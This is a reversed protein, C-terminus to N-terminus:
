SPPAHISDGLSFPDLQDEETAEDDVDMLSQDQGSEGPLSSAVPLIPATPAPGSAADSGPEGFGAVSPDVPQVPAAPAPARGALDSGPGELGPLPSPAPLPHKRPRGRKRKVQGEAAGLISAMVDGAHISPGADGAPISFAEAEPREAADVAPGGLCDHLAKQLVRTKTLIAKISTIYDDEIDAIAERAVKDDIALFSVVNAQEVLDDFFIARQHDDGGTTSQSQAKRKAWEIPAPMSGSMMVSGMEFRDIRVLGVGLGSALLHSRGMNPNWALAHVGIAPHWPVPDHFQGQRFRAKKRRTDDFEPLLDDLLRLEGTARDHDLRFAKVCPHATAGKRHIVSSRVVNILRVAGDTSGYALFPHWGSTSMSVIRGYAQAVRKSIGYMGLRQVTVRVTNDSTDGIFLELQPCWAVKNLMRGMFPDHLDLLANNTGLDSVFLVHPLHPADPEFTGSASQYPILSWAISSIYDESFPLFHSPRVTETGARLADGTRWVAVHGRSCGAALLEGGAWSICTPIAGFSQLHLAATLKIRVPGRATSGSPSSQCARVDDPHPIALIRATGDLFVGALVGLRRAPRRQDRVPQSRYDHGNPCWALALATGYEHYIMMELAVTSDAKSQANEDADTARAKGKGGDDAPASSSPQPRISWLQLVGPTGPPCTQGKCTRVNIDDSASVVLYEPGQALVPPVPRWAVDYVFGGANIMHVTEKAEGKGSGPLNCSGLVPIQLSKRDPAIGAEIKIGGHAADNRPGVEEFKAVHQEAISLRSLGDAVTPPDDMNPPSSAPPEDPETAPAPANSARRVTTRAVMFAQASKEDMLEYRKKDLAPHRFPLDFGGNSDKGTSSEVAEGSARRDAELVMQRAVRPDFIKGPYWEMDQAEKMQEMVGALVHRRVDERPRHMGLVTEVDDLAAPPGLPPQPRFGIQSPLGDAPWAVPTAIKISAPPFSPGAKNPRWMASKNTDMIKEIARRRADGGTSADGEADEDENGDGDEEAIAHDLTYEDDDEDDVAGRLSARATSM